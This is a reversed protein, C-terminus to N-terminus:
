TGSNMTTSLENLAEGVKAQGGDANVSSHHSFANVLSPTRAASHVDTTVAKAAM